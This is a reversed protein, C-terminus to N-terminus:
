RPHGELYARRSKAPLKEIAYRLMTRPMVRCHRDLFGELLSRNRNGIERLMWGSAKHILDEGDGLLLECLALADDFDGDRIFHYTTMIAVRRRWLTRSRALRYLPRRSRNALWGGCIHHASADVLDWNNVYDLHAVYADYVARRDADGGRRFREVLALLAFLREEHWTSKLIAVVTKLRVDRHRRALKRLAPVRIGLFRDGEGYEGKGTKFFRQSHIAIQPNALARIDKRIAAATAPM